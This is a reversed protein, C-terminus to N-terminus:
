RRIPPNISSRAIAGLARPGYEMRGDFRAVVHGAALLAAVEAEISDPRTYDVDEKRLQEEIEDDTFEGGLFVDRIVDPAHTMEARGNRKMCPELAAGVALGCDTMGPHVFIREVGDIEYLKQNIRVNAFVGGAIAMTATDGDPNLRDRTYAVAVDECHTQISAAVDERTWGAPLAKELAKLAGRFIVKGKNLIKGDEYCLFKNLLDRYIPKGHAALGTIKGEHKQATYGCIHTAYAYYNGVSNYASTYAVRKFEGDTSGTCM